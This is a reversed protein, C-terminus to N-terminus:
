DKNELIAKTLDNIRTNYCDNIGLRESVGWKGAYISEALTLAGKINNASGLYIKRKRPFIQWISPDILHIGHNDKIVLIDHSLGLRGL